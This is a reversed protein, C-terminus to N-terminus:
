GEGDEELQLCSSMELSLKIEEEVVGICLNWLNSNLKSLGRPGPLLIQYEKEVM